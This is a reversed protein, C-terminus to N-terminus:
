TSGSEVSTSSYFHTCKPLKSVETTSDDKFVHMNIKFLQNTNSVAM